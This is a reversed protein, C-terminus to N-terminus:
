RLAKQYDRMMGEIKETMGEPIREGWVEGNSVVPRFVKDHDNMDGWAVGEFFVKHLHMHLNVVESNRTMFDISAKCLMKEALHNHNHRDSDGDPDTIVLDDYHRIALSALVRILHSHHSVWPLLCQMLRRISEEGARGVSTNWRLVFNVLLM